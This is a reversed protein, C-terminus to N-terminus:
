GLVLGGTYRQRPAALGDPLNSPQLFGFLESIFRLPM